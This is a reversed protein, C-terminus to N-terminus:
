LAQQASWGVNFSRKLESYRGATRNIYFGCEESISNRAEIAAVAYGGVAFGINTIRTM